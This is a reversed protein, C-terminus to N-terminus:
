AEKGLLGEHSTEGASESGRKESTGDHHGNKSVPQTNPSPHTDYRCPEGDANLMLSIWVDWPVVVLPTKRDRRLFLVDYDALWRELLTFGQGEGRSKVEALLPSEERGWPYIDVDHGDGQYRSAGSLPVREAHVGAEKHLNVIEREIRAGKDRQSKSM